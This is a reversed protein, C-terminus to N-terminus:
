IGKIELILTKILSYRSRIIFKLNKKIKKIHDIIKIMMKLIRRILIWGIIKINFIILSLMKNHIIM